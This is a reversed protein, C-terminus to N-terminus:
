KQRPYILSNLYEESFLFLFFNDREERLFKQFEPTQYVLNSSIVSLQERYQVALQALRMAAIPHQQVDPMGPQAARVARYFERLHPALQKIRNTDIANDVAAIARFAKEAESLTAADAPHLPADMQEPTYHHLTNHLACFLRTSDHCGAAIERRVAQTFQEGPILMLARRLAPDDRVLAEFAEERVGTAEVAALMRAKAEHVPLVKDAAADAQRRERIGELAERATTLIAAFNEAETRLATATAPQEATAICCVMMPFITYLVSTRMSHLRVLRIFIRSKKFIIGIKQLFPATAPAV